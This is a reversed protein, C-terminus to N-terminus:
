ELPLEWMSSLSFIQGDRTQTVKGTDKFLPLLYKHAIILNVFVLVMEM